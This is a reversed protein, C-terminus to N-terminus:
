KLLINVWEYVKNYGTKEFIKNTALKTAETLLGCKVAGENLLQLTLESVLFYAYGKKRENTKTFLGGIMVNDPSGSLLRAMSVILGNNSWKYIKSNLVGQYASEQVSEYSQQGKGEFEELYYNASMKLISPIDNIVAVGLKGKPQRTFPNVTDCDYIIRDNIMEYELKMKEMLELILKKSGRLLLPRAEIQTLQNELLDLLDANWKRSYIFFLQEVWILIVNSGDDDIINYADYLREKGESLDIFLRHVHFHEFYQAKLTEENYDLFDSPSEFKKVKAM